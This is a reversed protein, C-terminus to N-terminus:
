LANVLIVTILTLALSLLKLPVNKTFVNRLYEAFKM